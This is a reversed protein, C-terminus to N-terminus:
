ASQDTCASRTKGRPKCLSVLLLGIAIGMLFGAGWDPLSDKFFFQVAISASLALCGAIFIKPSRLV